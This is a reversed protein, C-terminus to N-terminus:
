ARPYRASKFGSEWASAIMGRAAYDYAEEWAVDFSPHWASGTADHLTGMLIEFVAGYERLTAGRASGDPRQFAAHARGWAKIKANLLEMPSPYEPDDSPPSDPDYNKGVTLLAELLRDRQARGEGASLPDTLDSPFLRALNPAALLLRRYFEAVVSQHGAPDDGLLTLSQRLLDNKTM